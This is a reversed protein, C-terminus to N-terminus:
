KGATHSFSFCFTHIQICSYIKKCVYKGYNKKNLKNQPIKKKQHHHRHKDRHYHCLNQQEYKYTMDEINEYLNSLYTRDFSYNGYLPRTAFM